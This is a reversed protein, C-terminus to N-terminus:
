KAAVVSARTIIRGKIAFGSNQTRIIEGKSYDSSEEVLIIEHM